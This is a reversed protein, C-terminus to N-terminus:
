FMVRRRYKREFPRGIMPIGREHVVLTVGPKGDGGGRLDEVEYLGEQKLHNPCRERAWRVSVTKVQRCARLIREATAVMSEDGRYRHGKTLSFRRLKPMRKLHMLLEDLAKKAFPTTCMFHLEELEEGCAGVLREFFQSNDRGDRIIHVWVDLCRLQTMTSLVGCVQDVRMEYVPECTLDVTEITRRHEIPIEALQQYIGVFTGLRPLSRPALAMPVIDPSVWRRFNWLLRLYTLSSHQSLFDGFSAGHTPGLSFDSQYGFSGLTLSTLRPFQSGDCSDSFSSSASLLPTIDFSCTHPSFSCITLESLEPCRQLIM